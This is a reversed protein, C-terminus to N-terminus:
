LSPSPYYPPASSSSPPPPDTQSFSPTLALALLVVIKKPFHANKKELFNFKKFFILYNFFFFSM